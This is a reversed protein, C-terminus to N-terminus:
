QRARELVLRVEDPTGPVVTWQWGRETLEPYLFVPERDHHVTLRDGAEGGDIRRLIEVMPGPAELGRVDLHLGDAERWTRAETALAQAPAAAPERDRRFYVRWHDAALCQPHASFGWRTLLQRLPAPDFPAELVLVGGPEVEGATELILAKPERGIALMPRVDLKRVKSKPIAAFWDPAATADKPTM